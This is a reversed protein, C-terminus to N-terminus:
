LDTFYIESFKSWIKRGRSRNEESREKEEEIKRLRFSPVFSMVLFISMLLTSGQEERLIGGTGADGLSGLVVGDINFKFCVLRPPTWVFSFRHTPIDSVKFILSM